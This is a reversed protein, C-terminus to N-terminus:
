LVNEIRRKNPETKRVQEGFAITIGLSSVQLNPSFEQLVTVGDTAFRLSTAICQWRAPLQRGTPVERRLNLQRV